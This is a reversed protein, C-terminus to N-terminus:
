EAPAYRDLTPGMRAAMEAAIAAALGGTLGDEAALVEAGGATAAFDRLAAIEAASYRGAIAVARARLAARAAAQMADDYLASLVLLEGQSLEPQRAHSDRLLQQVSAGALQRILAADTAGEVLYLAALRRQPPDALLPAPLALLLALLLAFRPM